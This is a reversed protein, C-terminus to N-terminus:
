LHNTVYLEHQEQEKIETSTLHVFVDELSPAVQTVSRLPLRQSRVEDLLDYLEDAGSFSGTLITDGDESTMKMDAFLRAQQSSLACGLRIQYYEQQFLGLLETLPRDALLKGARMIAVRDCLDQAIDLQHTTLIVTMNKERALNTIWAKITLAAQVDLGLTPEDLLVIAPEAILASAIAVKQQMGRSFTRVPDNRREWLDLEQLLRQANAQLKQGSFGKLRGFYMLNEWASLRWYVNRTGELVAGIQRMAMSREHAVDYGNVKISGTSPIILGCIMKITTTKGAGNAGLFGFVQGAPVYLDLKEVAARGQKKGKGYIKSLGYIEIAAQKDILATV